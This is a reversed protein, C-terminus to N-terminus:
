KNLKLVTSPPTQPQLILHDQRQLSEVTISVYLHSSVTPVLKLYSETRLLYTIYIYIHVTKRAIIKSKWGHFYFQILIIEIFWAMRYAAWMSTTFFENYGCFHLFLSLKSELNSPYKDSVKCQRSIFSSCLSSSEIYSSSILHRWVHFFVQCCPTWIYVNVSHCFM